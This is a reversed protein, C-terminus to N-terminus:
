VTKRIWLSSPFHINPNYIPVLTKLMDPKYYHLYSQCMGIRFNTNFSLFARVLAGENWFLYTDFLFHELPLAPMPFTMDHIHIVVGQRLRPLVELFLFDVDSDKKSVHSSDIFLVDNTSLEQFTDFAVDQVECKRLEVNSGQVLGKLKDSPFPEVCTLKSELNHGERNTELATMTYFTSVGSGVEIVRSPKLHRLMMYLLHAEIEGYGPGYGDQTVESFSPLFKMESAFPRLHEILELQGNLNWDIGPSTDEKYWRPLNKKVARIDPLPSYYHVPPFPMDYWLEFLRSVLPEIHTNGKAKLSLRRVMSRLKTM